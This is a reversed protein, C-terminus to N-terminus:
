GISSGGSTSFNNSLKDKLESLVKAGGCGTVPHSPVFNQLCEAPWGDVIDDIALWAAPKRRRIDSLVQEPRSQELFIDRPMASHFTAGIVRRNLAEPLYGRARSYGLVRVWSTSLVIQVEPYPALAEVLYDVNEFLRHGIYGPWLYIGRKPHRYVDEPHLVGDYDLYLVRECFGKLVKM